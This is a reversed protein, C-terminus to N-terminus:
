KNGFTDEFLSKYDIEAYCQSCFGEIAAGNNIQVSRSKINGQIVATGDIIVPGHVDVDGKIAGGIVASTAYINGIIVSGNAVKVAGDSNIDGEVKANNAFIEKAQSTGKIQGTIVLKGKCSIDGNIKGYVNISGSSSISGTLTTGKTIETVEDSAIDDEDLTNVMTEEDDFTNVDDISTEIDKDTEMDDNIDVADTIEIDNIVEDADKEKTEIVEEVDKMTDKLSAQNKSDKKPEKVIKEELTTENKKTTSDNTSESIASELDFDDLAMEEDVADLVSNIKDLDLSDMDDFTNVMGTDASEDSNKNTANQTEEVPDEAVLENVAQALDDKFEKLFSM